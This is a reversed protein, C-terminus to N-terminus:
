DKREVSKKLVVRLEDETEDTMPGSARHLIEGDAALVFLYCSSKDDMGLAEFYPKRNGYFTATNDHFQMPIGARMWNDIQWGIPKYLTSIMPVEYYSVNSLPEYEKLIMKAWTDVLRQSNQEFVLILINYEAALDEPFLIKDGSLLEAKLSPFQHPIPNAAAPKASFLDLKTAFISLFIGIIVLAIRNMM